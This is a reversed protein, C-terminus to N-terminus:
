KALRGYTKSEHLYIVETHEEANLFVFENCLQESLHYLQSITGHMFDQGRKMQEKIVRTMTEENWNREIAILDMGEATLHSIKGTDTAHFIKKEGSIYYACNRVNHHLEEARITYKGYDYDVGMNYVDIQESPIGLRILEDYLWEGCGFRVTPRQENIYRVTSSISGDKNPKKSKLLHDGHIHTLLVLELKDLFPAIKKQSVGVDVLIMELYIIANGKSGTAIINYM